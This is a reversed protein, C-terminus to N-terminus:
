QNWYQMESSVFLANYVELRTFFLGDGARSKITFTAVDCTYLDMAAPITIVLDDGGATYVTSDFSGDRYLTYYLM